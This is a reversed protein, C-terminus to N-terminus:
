AQFSGAPATTDVSWTRIAPTSDTNSAADTARVYFTHQGDALGTYSKPSSCSAYAEDDLKCEFSSNAESSSFAFTASANNTLGWPAATITTQPPATNDCADPALSAAVDAHGAGLKATYKPDIGVLPRASCSIRQAVGAPDLSGYVAHILAAQGSVFPTAMSTGSWYAYNSGPFTSRIEEGPAAMDVWRGYNAFDSKQGYMNVSTVAVLGGSPAGVRDGAAPYEPAVSNSNGAAAAVLVGNQIADESASLLLKSRNQSGLSLNIVDAGNQVAYSIARAITFDDGYGETDLVRLPM